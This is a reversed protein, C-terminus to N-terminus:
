ENREEDKLLESVYSEASEETYFERLFRNNKIVVFNGDCCCTENHCKRWQHSNLIDYKSM